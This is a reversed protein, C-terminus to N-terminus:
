RESGPSFINSKKISSNAALDALPSDFDGNLVYDDQEFGNLSTQDNRAFRMARYAFVREGDIPPGGTGQHEM